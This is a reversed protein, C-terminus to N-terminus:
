RRPGAAFLERLAGLSNGDLNRKMGVQQCMSLIKPGGPAIGGPCRLM